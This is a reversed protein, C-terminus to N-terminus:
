PLSGTFARQFAAVDRLDIVENLDFDGLVCENFLGAPPGALCGLFLAHDDADVDHDRDLDGL